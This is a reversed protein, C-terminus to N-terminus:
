AIYYNTYVDGKPSRIMAHFGFETVDLKGSAYADDIGHISYTRINPYSAQLEDAMVPSEVVTFRQMTGDPIPLNVIVSSNKVAVRTDVPASALMTKLRDINLYVTKYKNPVIDRKGSVVIDKESISKWFEQSSQACLALSSTLIVSLIITKKM